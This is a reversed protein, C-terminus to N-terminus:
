RGQWLGYLHGAPDRFRAFRGQDAIEQPALETRGGAEEIAALAEELSGRHLHIVVLPQPVAQHDATIGGGPGHPPRLKRYEGGQHEVAASSWGFAARFFRATAAPDPSPIEFHGFSAEIM